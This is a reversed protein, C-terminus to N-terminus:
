HFDQQQRHHPRTEKISQPLTPITVHQGTNPDHITLTQDENAFDQIISETLINFPWGLLINYTPSSSTLLLYYPRDPFSCELLGTSIEMPLSCICSLPPIM